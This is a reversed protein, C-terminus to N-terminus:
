KAQSNQTFEIEPRAKKIEDIFSEYWERKTAIVFYSEDKFILELRDNSVLLRIEVVEKLDIVNKLIGWKLIVSDNEILYYSNFIAGLAVIIYGVVVILIIIYTIYDYVEFEIKNSIQNVLRIINWVLCALAVVIGLVMVLMTKTPLQYKFKKM